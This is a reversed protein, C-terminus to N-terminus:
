NRVQNTVPVSILNKNRNNEPQFRQLTPYGNADRNIFGLDHFQKFLFNRLHTTNFFFFSLTFFNILHVLNFYFFLFFSRPNAPDFSSSNRPHTHPTLRPPIELIPQTSSFINFNTIYTLLNVLRVHKFAPQNEKVQSDTVSM